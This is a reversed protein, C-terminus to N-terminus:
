SRKIFFCDCDIRCIWKNKSLGEFAVAKMTVGLINIFVVFQKSLIVSNTVCNQFIFLSLQLIESSYIPM